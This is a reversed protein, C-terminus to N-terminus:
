FLKEVQLKGSWALLCQVKLLVPTPNDIRPFCEKQNENKMGKVLAQSFCM